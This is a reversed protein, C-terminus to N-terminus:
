FGGHQALEEEERTDEDVPARAPEDPDDATVQLRAHSFGRHVHAEFVGGLQAVLDLRDLGHDLPLLIKELVPDLRHAGQNQAIDGLRQLQM